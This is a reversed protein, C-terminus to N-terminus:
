RAQRQLNHNFAEREFVKGFVGTSFPIREGSGLVYLESYLLHDDYFFDSDLQWTAFPGRAIKKMHADASPNTLFALAAVAAAAATGVVTQFFEFRKTEHTSVYGKKTTLLKALADISVSPFREDFAVAQFKLASQLWSCEAHDVEDVIVPVLRKKLLLAHEVEAAMPSSPSSERTILIVVDKAKKIAALLQDNWDGGELETLDMFTKYGRLELSLKILHAIAVRRRPYSIFVM